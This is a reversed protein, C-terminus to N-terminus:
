FLTPVKEQKLNQLKLPFLRSVTKVLFMLNLLIEQFSLHLILSKKPTETIIVFNYNKRKSQYRCQVLFNLTHKSKYISQADDYLLLLSETKPDVMQTILKLWEAHFDHGEDIM